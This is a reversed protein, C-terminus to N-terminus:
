FEYSASLHAAYAKSNYDGTQTTIIPNDAAAVSGSAWSYELAADVILGAYIPKGAGIVVTNGLGPTSFLSTAFSNPVIQSTWVYGGRLIWDGIGKYETGFRLNNMNNWGQYIDDFAGRTTGAQIGLSQNDHYQTFTYEALLRWGNPIVDYYGGLSINQPATNSLNGGTGTVTTPTTVGAAPVLITSSVSDNSLNFSVKSRWELGIGFPQDKPTYQIGARFGNYRTGSMGTLNYQALAFQGPAVRRAGSYQLDLSAMLIRYAAGIKLGEFVEYGTGVSIETLRLDAKNTTKLSSLNSNLGSWDIEKYEVQAGGGVYIGAGIGWKPAVSYSAFLAYPVLFRTDSSIPSSTPVIPTKFQDWTPSGNVSVMLGRTEALGAPNFFLAEPGSVSSAAAGGLASWKASWLVAKEFGAAWANSTGMGMIGSAAIFAASNVCRKMKSMKKQKM